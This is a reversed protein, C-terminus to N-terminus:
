YSFHRLFGEQMRLLGNQRGAASVCPFLTKELQKRKFYGTVFDRSRVLYDVIKDPKARKKPMRKLAVVQSERYRQLLYSLNEEARVYLQQWAPAPHPHLGFDVIIDMWAVLEDEGVPVDHIQLQRSVDRISVRLDRAYGSEMLPGRGRGTAQAVELEQYLQNLRDLLSSRSTAHKELRGRYAKMLQDCLALRETYYRGLVERHQRAHRALRTDATSIMNAIAGGDAEYERLYQRAEILKHYNARVRQAIGSLGGLEDLLARATSIAKVVPRGKKSRRFKQLERGLESVAGTSSRQMALDYAKAAKEGLQRRMTQHSNMLFRQHSFILDELVQTTDAPAKKLLDLPISDPVSEVPIRALKEPPLTEVLKRFAALPIQLAAEM